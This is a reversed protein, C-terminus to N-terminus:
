GVGIISTQPYYYSMQRCLKHIIYSIGYGNELSLPFTTCSFM